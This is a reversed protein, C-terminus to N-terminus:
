RKEVLVLPKEKTAPLVYRTSRGSGQTLLLNKEALMTLELHATKHSVGFLNRYERNTITGHEKIFSLSRKQRKNLGHGHWPSRIEEEEAERAPRSYNGDRIYCIEDTKYPKEDGESVTLVLIAREGRPIIDIQPVISPKCRNKAVDLIWDKLNGDANIGLFHRNKDDIGFIVRGGDSNSFAVLERTIDDPGTIAKEFEVSQSEGHEVLRVIEEWTIEM